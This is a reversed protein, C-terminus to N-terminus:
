YAYTVLPYQSHIINLSSQNSMMKEQQNTQFVEIIDKIV